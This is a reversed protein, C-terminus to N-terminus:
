SASCPPHRLRPPRPTPRCSPCAHPARPGGAAPPPTHPHPSPPLRLAGRVVADVAALLRLAITGTTDTNFNVLARNISDAMDELLHHTRTSADAEAEAASKNLMYLSARLAAVSGNVLRLNRQFM